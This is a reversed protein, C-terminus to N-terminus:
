FLRPWAAMGNVFMYGYPSLKAEFTYGVKVVYGNGWVTLDLILVLPLEPNVFMPPMQFLCQVGHLLYRQQVIDGAAHRREPAALGTWSEGKVRRCSQIWGEEEVWGDRWALVGVHVWVVHYVHHLLSFSSIRGKHLPSLSSRLPLVPGPHIRLLCLPPPHHPWRRSAIHAAPSPPCRVPLTHLHCINVWIIPPVPFLLCLLLQPLRPALAWVELQWLSGNMPYPMSRLLSLVAHQAHCPFLLPASVPVCRSQSWSPPYVLLFYLPLLTYPMLCVFYLYYNFVRTHGKLQYNFIIYINKWCVLSFTRSLMHYHKIKKKRQWIGKMKKGQCTCVSLSIKNTM